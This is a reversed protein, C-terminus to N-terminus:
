YRHIVLELTQIPLVFIHLLVNLIMLINDFIDLVSEIVFLPVELPIERLLISISCAFLFKYVRNIPSNQWNHSHTYALM